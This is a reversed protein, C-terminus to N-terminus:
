PVGVIYFFLGVGELFFLFNKGSNKKLLVVKSFWVVGRYIMFIKELIKNVSSHGVM